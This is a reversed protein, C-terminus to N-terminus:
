GAAHVIAAIQAACAEVIEGGLLGVARGVRDGAAHRTKQQSRDYCFPCVAM